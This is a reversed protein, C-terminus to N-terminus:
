TTDGLLPDCLLPMPLSLLPNRFMGDLFRRSEEELFGSSQVCCLISFLTIFSRWSELGQSSVRDTPRCLHMLTKHSSIYQLAQNQYTGREPTTAAVAEPIWRDVIIITGRRYKWLMDSVKDARADSPMRRPLKKHMGLSCHGYASQNRQGEVGSIKECLSQWYAWLRWPWHPQSFAIDLRLQVHCTAAHQYVMQTKMSSLCYTVIGM